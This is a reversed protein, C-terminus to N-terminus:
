IIIEPINASYRECLYNQTKGTFLIEIRLLSADIDNIYRCKVKEDLIM